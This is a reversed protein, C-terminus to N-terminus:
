LKHYLYTDGIKLCEKYSLVGNSCSIDQLSAAATTVGLKLTEEISWGEHLAFLIGAALADGAGVTSKIKEKPFRVSGQLFEDGSNSLAYVGRPYHIFVWNKVGHSFLKNAARRLSSLEITNDSLNIGTTKEAEYENIFLYNVFPLTPLVVQKFRDSDESVIDISTKLGARQANQLVKAAGTMGNNDLEDLKDLLLLYGLHLIKETSNEFNFHEVDLLANAGRQHFFTRRGTSEVTMVDTYSTSTGKATQLESINIKHHICDQKVWAGKTDDGLMGIGKLPFPAEMKSLDKLVNYPSGGNNLYESRVNTLADQVPYIDIIKIHDVIWNGAALIGSRKTEAM